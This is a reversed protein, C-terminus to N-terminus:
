RVIIVFGNLPLNASNPSGNSTLLRMRTSKGCGEGGGELSSVMEELKIIEEGSFPSLATFIWHINYPDSGTQVNLITWM